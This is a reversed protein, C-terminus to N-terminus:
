RKAEGSTAAAMAEAAVVEATDQGDVHDKDAAQADRADKLRQEAAGKDIDAVMMAEEALVTCRADTVEAFGGEVFIQASVKDGDYVDITGARVTSLMPAHGPMVGFDGEGGPVVVMDASESLLLKGPTVIELEIKEEAM